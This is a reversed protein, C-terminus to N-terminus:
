GHQRAEVVSLHPFHHSPLRKCVRRHLRCLRIRSRRHPLRITRWLHCLHLSPLRLLSPHNQRSPCLHTQHRRHETTKEVIKMHILVEEWFFSLFFFFFFLLFFFCVECRGKLEVMVDSDVDVGNCVGPFNYIVVPLVSKEAVERYFKKVVNGTTQKGFYACPLVLAYDAKAAAADSIFELVQKTSHGSVGAM